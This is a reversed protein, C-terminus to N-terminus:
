LCLHEMGLESGVRWGHEIRMDKPDVSAEDPIGEKDHM